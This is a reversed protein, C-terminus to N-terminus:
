ALLERLVRRVDENLEVLGGRNDLTYDFTEDALEIEAPHLGDTRPDYVQGRAALREARQADTARVHVTSFGRERLYTLDYRFRMSDFVVPSDTHKVEAIAARLWVAEDVSRMADTVQNLLTKSDSQFLHLCVRRCAAGTRCHVYGFEEILLAAITSKGSGSPGYLAINTSM